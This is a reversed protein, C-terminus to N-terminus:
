PLTPNPPSPSPNPYPNPNPNPSPNPDPNPSPSPSPSPNAQAIVVASRAAYTHALEAVAEPREYGLRLRAAMRTLKAGLGSCGEGEFGLCHAASAGVSVTPYVALTSTEGREQM